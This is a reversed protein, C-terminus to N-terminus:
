FKVIRTALKNVVTMKHEVLLITLDNYEKAKLISNILTETNENDLGTTPEDLLWLNANQSLLMAMALQQRQGGSLLGATKNMWDNIHPFTTAIQNLKIKINRSSMGNFCLILNEKVKLQTFIANKQMFYAIGLGKIQEPTKGNLNEGNYQINGSEIKCLQYISKLLTSKGCGNPGTIAVVEGRKLDLNFDKIIPKDGYGCTLNSINLVTNSKESTM